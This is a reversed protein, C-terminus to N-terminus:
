SRRWYNSNYHQKRYLEDYPQRKIPEPELPGTGLGYVKLMVLHDHDSLPTHLDCLTASDLQKKSPIM